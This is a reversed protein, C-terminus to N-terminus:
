PNKNIFRSYTDNKNIIPKLQLIEHGIYENQKNKAIELGDEAFFLNYCLKKGIEPNTVKLIYKHLLLLFRATWIRNVSIIVFIDIDGKETM